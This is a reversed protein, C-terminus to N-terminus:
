HVRDNACDKDCEEELLHIVDKLSTVSTTAQSLIEEDAAVLDPIFVSMMQAAKAAQIGLRSDELVMCMEAKVGIQEAAKLFIEPNPKSEEIDSGCIIFDFREKIGGLALYRLAKERMSSTAVAKKIGKEELYDLLEVLGEKKKIGEEAIMEDSLARKKTCIADYPLDEGLIQKLVKEIYRSNRAVIQAYIEWTITYGYAVAAEQWAKYYIRETDFMLGDMDFIVLQKM